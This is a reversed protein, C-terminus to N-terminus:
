ERPLLFKFAFGAVVAAVLQAGVYIWLNSLAFVNMFSGGIAVAPNFAKGSVIGAAYTGATVTFGIAWGYFSNGETGKATAVNLVVNVLAFAVISGAVQVIWYGVAEPPKIKGRVLVGLTVAPNYNGGSMHGGAFTMAALVSGIEIPVFGAIAGPDNVTMSVTFVLFFTGIFEVSLARSNIAM